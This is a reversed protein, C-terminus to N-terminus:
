GSAPTGPARGKAASGATTTRGTARSRAASRKSRRKATATSPPAADATPATSAPPKTAAKKELREAYAAAVLGLAQDRLVFETAGFLTEESCSVLRRAMALISDESRNRIRDALDKAKQELEPSLPVTM